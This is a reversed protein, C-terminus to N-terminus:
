EKGILGYSKQDSEGKKRGETGERDLRAKGSLDTGTGRGATGGGKEEKLKTNGRRATGAGRRNRKKETGERDVRAKGSLSHRKWSGSNRGGKNRRM